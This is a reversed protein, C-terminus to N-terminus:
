WPVLNAGKLGAGSTKTRFDQNLLGVRSRPPFHSQLNIMDEHGIGCFCVLFEYLITRLTAIESTLSAGFSKKCETGYWVM